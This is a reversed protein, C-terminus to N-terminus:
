FVTLNDVVEHSAGGETLVGDNSLDGCGLDVLLSIKILDAHESASEGSTPSSDPVGALNLRVSSDNNESESSNSEGDNLGGLDSTGSKNDSNVEVGLLLFGSKLETAVEEDVWSFEFIPLSNLVVEEGDLLPAVVVSEVTCSIGLDHSVGEFESVSTPSLGANDTDSRASVFNGGSWELEDGSSDPLSGGESAPLGSGLDGLEDVTDQSTFEGDALVDGVVDLTEGVDVLSDIDEVGSVAESGDDSDGLEALLESVRLGGDDVGGELDLSTFEDSDLM